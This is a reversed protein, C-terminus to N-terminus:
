EITWKLTDTHGGHTLNMELVYRHAAGKDFNAAFHDDKLEAKLPNKAKRPLETTFSAKLDKLQTLPKMDEDYIYIKVESDKAVLEVHLTETELM